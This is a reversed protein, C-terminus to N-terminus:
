SSCDGSKRVEFRITAKQLGEDDGVRYGVELDEAVGFEDGLVEIGLMLKVQTRPPVEAAEGVIQRRAWAADSPFTPPYYDNLAGDDVRLVSSEFLGLRESEILRVSTISVTDATENTFRLGYLVGRADGRVFNCFEPNVDDDWFRLVGGDGYAGSSCGATVM